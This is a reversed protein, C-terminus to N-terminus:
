EYNKSNIIFEPLFQILWLASGNHLLAIVKPIAVKEPSALFYLSNFQKELEFNIIAPLFLM